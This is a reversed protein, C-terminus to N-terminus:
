RGLGFFRGERQKKALRLLAQGESDSIRDRPDTSERTTEMIFLFAEGENMEALANVFRQRKQPDSMPRDLIPTELVSPGHAKLLPLGGPFSRTEGTVDQIETPHLRGLVRERGQNLDLLLASWINRSDILLKVLDPDLIIPEGLDDRKFLQLNIKTRESLVNGIQTNYRNLRTELQERTAGAELEDEKLIAEAEVKKLQAKQLDRALDKDLKESAQVRKANQLVSRILDEAGELSNFAISDSRRIEEVIEDDSKSLDAFQVASVIESRALGPFRVRKQIENFLTADDQLAAISAARLLAQRVPSDPALGKEDAVQGAVVELNATDEAIRAREQEDRIEGKVRETRRLLEFAREERAERPEELPVFEEGIIERELAEPTPGPIPAAPGFEGEELPQFQQGPILKGEKNVRAAPLAKGVPEQFTAGGQVALDSLAKITKPSTDVLVASAIGKIRPDANPNDVISQAFDFIRQKKAAKEQEDLLKQRTQAKSFGRGAGLLLAGIVSGAGM